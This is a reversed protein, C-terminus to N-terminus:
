HQDMALLVFDRSVNPLRLAAASVNPMVHKAHEMSLRTTTPHHLVPLVLGLMAADLVLSLVVPLVRRHVRTASHPSSMSSLDRSALLTAHRRMFVRISQQM